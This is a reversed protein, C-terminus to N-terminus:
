AHPFCIGDNPKLIIDKTNGSWTKQFETQSLFTLLSAPDKSCGAGSPTWTCCACLCCKRSSGAVISWTWTLRCFLNCGLDRDNIDDRRPVAAATHAGTPCKRVIRRREVAFTDHWRFTDTQRRPKGNQTRDQGHTTPSCALSCAALQVRKQRRTRRQTLAHTKKQSSGNRYPRPPFRSRFSASAQWKAVPEAVNAACLAEEIKIRRRRLQDEGGDCVGQRDEHLGDDRRFTRIADHLHKLAMAQAQVEVVNNQQTCGNVKTLQWSLHVQRSFTPRSARTAAIM